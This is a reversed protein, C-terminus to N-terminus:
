SSVDQINVSIEAVAGAAKGIRESINTAGLSSSAVSKTIELTTASQEEVSAAITNSISSVEEVVKSVEGLAVAANKTSDQIEEVKQRIEETASATQRALEKVESAVVAFGRGAEGASAAEITANLALLNTQEAITKIVELVKGIEQSSISLRGMIEEAKQGQTNADSAIESERACNKAVKSLSSSMEEISSAVMNVSGSVDESLSAVQKINESVQSSSKVIETSKMGVTAMSENMKTSLPTLKQQSESKVEVSANRVEVVVKKLGEVMNKLAKFFEGREDKEKVDIQITLDGKALQNAIGVARLIPTTIGRAVLIALGVVIAIVAVLMLSIFQKIERTTEIAEEEEIEAALIWNLGHTKLPTFASLVKKGLYGTIKKTATEGQFALNVAETDVGNTKRNGNLSAKLTRNEKDLFSDSRMLRDNGVLYTEGTRGLGTRELLITNIESALVKGAIIGAMTGNEDRLATAVFLSPAGNLPEYLSFDEIWNASPDEKIRAFARALGSKTKSLNTGFDAARNNSYVVAGGPSIFYFDNFNGALSKLIPGYDSYAAEYEASWFGFAPDLGLSEFELFYSYISSQGALVSIDHIKKTLLKEIARKKTERATKLQKFVQKELATTTKTLTVSGMIAIPIIGIALLVFIIKSQISLHM